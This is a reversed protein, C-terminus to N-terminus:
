NTTIVPLFLHENTDNFILTTAQAIITADSNDTVTLRLRDASNVQTEEPVDVTVTVMVSQGAPVFLVSPPSSLLWGKASDVNLLYTRDNNEFNSIKFLVEQSKGNEVVISNPGSVELAQIRIVRSDSREFADGETTQGSAVLRWDGALGPTFYGKYIGDNAVLDNGQGDDLLTVPIRNPGDVQVLEFNVTSVSGLVRAALEFPRGVSGSLKSLNTYQISTDGSVTLL